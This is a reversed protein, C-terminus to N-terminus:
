SAAKAKRFSISLQKMNIIMLRQIELSIATFGGKGISSFTKEAIKKADAMTVPQSYSVSTIVLFGTLLLCLFRMKM